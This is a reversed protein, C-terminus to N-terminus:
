RHFMQAESGLMAKKASMSSSGIMNMGAQRMTYTQESEMFTNASFPQSGSRALDRGKRQISEYGKVGMSPLAKAASIGIYAPMGIIDVLFADVAGKAVSTVLSSGQRKEENFTSVGSYASLGINLMTGKSVGRLLKKSAAGSVGAM